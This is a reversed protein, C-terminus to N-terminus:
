LRSLKMLWSDWTEVGIRPVSTQEYEHRRRSEKIDNRTRGGIVICRLNIDKNPDVQLPTHPGVFSNHHCEGEEVRKRISHVRTRFEDLGDRYILGLRSRIQNASENFKQSFNEYSDQNLLYYDAGKVEILTVDMRSRGSFIAFEVSGDGVPFESFCIYEDEPHAYFEAIISL